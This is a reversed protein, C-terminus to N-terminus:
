KSLLLTLATTVGQTQIADFYTLVSQMFAKNAYFQFRDANAIKLVATVYDISSTYILNDFATKAPDNLTQDSM